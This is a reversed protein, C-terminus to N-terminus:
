RRNELGDQRLQDMIGWESEIFRAEETYKIIGIQREARAGSPDLHIILTLTVFLLLGRLTTRAM